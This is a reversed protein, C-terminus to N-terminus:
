ETETPKELSSGAPAISTDEQPAPADSKPFRAAARELTANLSELVALFTQLDERSFTQVMETGVENLHEMFDPANPRNLVATLKKLAPQAFASFQEDDIEAGVTMQYPNINTIACPMRGMLYDMNVNFYDAIAELTEFGPEREDREYMNISSKSVGIHKALESQSISHGNRLERLRQGFSAM